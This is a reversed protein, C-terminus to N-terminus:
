SALSLGQGTQHPKTHDKLDKRQDNTLENMAALELRMTEIEQRVRELAEDQPVALLEEAPIPKGYKTRISGFLKPLKQEKPWLDFAGQIALPVVLPKAKKILLMVGPQLPQTKGDSTRTGEPFLLLQQGDQLLAICKKMAVRDGEGRKIPIANYLKYVPRMWWTKWLSERALAYFGRTHMGYGHLVPDFYSQHNSLVLVGGEQPFQEVGFCRFRLCLMGYSYLFPLIIYYGIRRWLPIHWSQKENDTEMKSM